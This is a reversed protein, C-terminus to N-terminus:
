QNEIIIHFEVDGFDLFDACYVRKNKNKKKKKAKTM